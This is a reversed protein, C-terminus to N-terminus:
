EWIIGYKRLVKLRDGPKTAALEAIAQDFSWHRALVTLKIGTAKIFLKADRIMPENDRYVVLGVDHLKADEGALDSVARARRGLMARVSAGAPSKLYGHLAQEQEHDRAEHENPQVKSAAAIAARLNADIMM